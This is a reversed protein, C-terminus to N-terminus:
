GLALGMDISELTKSCVPAVMLVWSLLLVCHATGVQCTRQATRARRHLFGNEPREIIQLVGQLQFWPTFIPKPCVVLRTAEAASEAALEKRLGHVGCRCRDAVM